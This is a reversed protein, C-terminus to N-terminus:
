GYSAKHETTSTGLERAIGQFCCQAYTVWYDDNFGALQMPDAGDKHTRCGASTTSTDLEGTYGQFCCQASTIRYDENFGVLWM